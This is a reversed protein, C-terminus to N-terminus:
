FRAEDASGGSTSIARYIQLEKGIVRNEDFLMEANIRSQKGMEERLQSNSCLLAMKEYLDYKNGVEVLFGTQHHVVEERCGRIDTAIVPVGMSMAEIISRPLGERYSPLVFVDSAALLEPIDRRIGMIHIGEAHVLQNMTQQLSQDRDTTLTDGILMLQANTYTKRLEHFASLLEVIGKERVFRGIFTFLVTDENLQLEGRVNARYMAKHKPHFRAHVDVGNGIHIMRERNQIFHKALCLEYDEKSQLLLWDTTFRATLFELTYFFRYHHKKMRDHFYFGHATYIIHPVRALKAAVRGILAAIPTHVHIIDYREKKLLRYLRLLSKMNSIPDIKRAIPIEKLIYGQDRLVQMRGTDSCASHVEFGQASLADILPKLLSDVSVDIACLQLIKVM